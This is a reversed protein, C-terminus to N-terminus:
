RVPTRRDSTSLFDVLTDDADFFFWNDVREHTAFDTLSSGILTDPSTDAHVTGNTSTRNTAPTLLVLRGNLVNLAPKGTRNHGTTLDSVRDSFGLDTRTWEAFIADLAPVSTDLDTRGGILINDSTAHSADLTDPGAGGILINRGTGGILGNPNADGVLLDNGVSGTVNSIGFVSNAAGQNVLSALNLPLDVTINGTYQSYDLTNTGNGANISGDLRGTGRFSFRDNTPGTILNQINAFSAFEGSVYGGNPQLIGISQPGVTYNSLDLTNSGPGGDLSTLGYGQDVIFRDDGQSGIVNPCYAFANIVGAVSGGYPYSFIHVTLSNTLASMDLTNNSGSSDGGSLFGSVSGNQGVIFDDTTNGGTLNPVQSFAFRSNPTSPQSLTGQNAGTINWTNALNPGVLTTSKNNGIVASIGSFGGVAGGDINSASGNALNVTVASSDQSYDLTGGNGVLKGDLKGDVGYNPLFQFDDGGPGGTFNYVEGLIIAGQGPIYNGVTTNNYIVWTRKPLLSQFTNQRYYGNIVFAAVNNSRSQLQYTDVAASGFLDVTSMNGQWSIPVPNAVAVGNLMTVALNNSNIAYTKQNTSSDWDWLALNDQYDGNLVVQGQINDLPSGPLGTTNIRPDTPLGVTINNAGTAANITTTTGAPTALVIVNTSSQYNGLATGPIVNLNLSGVKTFTLGSFNARTLSYDGPTSSSTNLVYRETGTAAHDDLTVATGSGSGNVTVPGALSGLDGHALAVTAMTSNVDLVVNTGAPTSQVDFTSGAPDSTGVLTLTGVNTYTLGGFGARTVSSDGPTSSSAGLVYSQAGTALHDDLVVATNSGSGNVTVPGIGAGLDGYGIDIVLNTGAPISQVNFSSGAGVPAGKIELTGVNSYFITTDYKFTQTTTTHTPPGKTGEGVPSTTKTTVVSTITRELEYMTPDSERPETPEPGPPELRYIPEGYTVGSISNGPDPWASGVPMDQAACDDLTLTGGNANVTLQGASPVSAFHNPDFTPGFATITDRAPGANITIDVIVPGVNITNHRPGANLTLPLNYDIQTTLTTATPIGNSDVIYTAQRLLSPPSNIDGPSFTYTTSGPTVISNTSGQDDVTLTAAGGGAFIAVHGIADLNHSLAGITIQNDAATVITTVHSTSTGEVDVSDNNSTGFGGSTRLELDYLGSYNLITTTGRFVAHADVEYSMATASSATDDLQLVTDMNDNCIVTVPGAIADLSGTFLGDASRRGIIVGHSPINTVANPDPTVNNIVTTTGAATSAIYVTNQASENDLTLNNLGSYNLGGFHTPTHALADGTAGFLRTVSQNNIEYDGLFSANQDLLNVSTVNPNGHVTVLGAVTDLNEGTNNAPNGGINITDSNGATDEAASYVDLTGSTALANVTNAASAGLYLNTASGSSTSQVEYDDNGTGGHLNLTEAHDITFGVGRAEQMGGATVTYTDANANNQDFVEVTTSAAPQAPTNLIQISGSFNAAFSQANPSLDITDNGGAETITIGKPLNFTTGNVTISDSEIKITNTGAGPEITVGVIQNPDFTATEGNLTVTLGGTSTMGLDITNGVQGNQDGQIDLMYNGQFNNNAGYQPTLLFNQLNGDPVIFAQNKQSWYAQVSEGALRYNYGAGTEAEGDAIENSGSNNLLGGTGTIAPTPVGIWGAIEKALGNLAGFIQPWGATPDTISEVIEHSLTQTLADVNLPGNTTGDLTGTSVWATTVFPHSLPLPIVPPFLGFPNPLLIWDGLDPFASHYGVANPDSSSIGPSTIEIYLPEGNSGTGPVLHNEIANDINGSLTGPGTSIPPPFLLNVDFNGFGNSLTNPDIATKDLFPTGPLNTRYESTGSLYTSNLIGTLANEVQMMRQAGQQPDTWYPGNFLLEIPVSPLARGGGDSVNEGPSNFHPLFVITPVTRDELRELEFRASRKRSAQRGRGRKLSKTIKEFAKRLTM